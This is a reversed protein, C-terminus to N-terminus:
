LVLIHCLGMKKHEIRDGFIGSISTKKCVQMPVIAAHIDSFDRAGWERDFVTHTRPRIQGSRDTRRVM